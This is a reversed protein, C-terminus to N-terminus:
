LGLEKKMEEHTIIVEKGSEIDALVRNIELLDLYDELLKRVALSLFKFTNQHPKDVFFPVVRFEHDDLLHGNNAEHIIQEAMEFHTVSVKKVSVSM